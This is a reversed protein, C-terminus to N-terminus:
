DDDDVPEKKIDAEDKEESKIVVQSEELDSLNVDVVTKEHDINRPEEMNTKGKQIRRHPPSQLAAASAKRLLLIVTVRELPIGCDPM